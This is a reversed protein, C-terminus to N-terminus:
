DTCAQPASGSVFNLFGSSNQNVCPWPYMYAVATGLYPYSYATMNSASRIAIESSMEHSCSIVTCRGYDGLWALLLLAPWSEVMDNM